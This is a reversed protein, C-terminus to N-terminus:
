VRAPLREGFFGVLRELTDDFRDEDFGDADDNWFGTDADPYVVFATRSLRDRAELSTDVQSGEDGRSGIYLGPLNREGLREGVWEDLPSCVSAFAAASDSESALMAADYVGSEFAVIGFGYEANSWDGAPNTVFGAAARAIRRRDAEDGVFEPALAAIGHRAIMRCINKLSSTPAPEAGFVVVTPWEGVGDPRALYGGHSRPGAPITMEGYIIETTGEGTQVAM